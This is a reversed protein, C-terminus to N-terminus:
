QLAKKRARPKAAPQTGHFCALLAAAAFRRRRRRSLKKIEHRERGKPAKVHRQQTIITM